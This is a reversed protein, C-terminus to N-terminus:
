QARLHARLCGLFHAAEAGSCARHDFSLSLPLEYRRKGIKDLRGTAVIAVQPPMVMATAYRGGLSGFNSLSITAGELDQRQLQRQEARERLALVREELDKIRSDSAVELVPVFLGHRSAIALGVRATPHRRVAPPHAQYWANLSGEDRCAASLARLTRALLHKHWRVEVHDFLTVLAVQQQARSMQVAMTRAVGQLAEFGEGLSTPLGVLPAADSLPAPGSTPLVGVISAASTSSTAAIATSAKDQPHYEFLATGVAVVSGAAVLCQDIIADQPAPIDVIAKATEVSLVTDGRQVKAGAAVAWAIIEAEHLGEGLDPLLFRSM